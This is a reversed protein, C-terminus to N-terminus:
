VIIKLYENESSNKNMFEKLKANESECEAMATLKFELENKRRKIAESEELNGKLLYNLREIEQTLLGIRTEYEMLKVERGEFNILDIEMIDYKEKIIENEELKLALLKHVRELEAAM